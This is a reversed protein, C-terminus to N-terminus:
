SAALSLSLFYPRLYAVIKFVVVFMKDKLSKVFGTNDARVLFPCAATVSCSFNYVLQVCVKYRSDATKAAVVLETM